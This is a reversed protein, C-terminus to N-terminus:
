TKKRNIIIKKLKEADSPIEEEHIIPIGQVHPRNQFLKDDLLIVMDCNSLVGQLKNLFAVHGKIRMEIKEIAAKMEAVGSEKVTSIESVFVHKSPVDPIDGSAHGADSFGMDVPSKKFWYTLFGLEVLRDDIDNQFSTLDKIAEYNAKYLKVFVDITDSFKKFFDNKDLGFIEAMKEFHALRTKMSGTEYDYITKTTVDLSRAIDGLSLNKSQRLEKFDKSRLQVFQGGRKSYVYPFEAGSLINTFTVMNVANIDYRNYLVGPELDGMRNKNGVIMPIAGFIRALNALEDSKEKTFNDINEIYKLILTNSEKKALLDFSNAQLEISVDQEAGSAGDIFKITANKHSSFDIITWGNERLASILKPILANSELKEIARAHNM